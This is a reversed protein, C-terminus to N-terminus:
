VNEGQNIPLPQANRASRSPQIPSISAPVGAGAGGEGDPLHLVLQIDKEREAPTGYEFLAARTNGNDVLVLLAEEVGASWIKCDAWARVLGM